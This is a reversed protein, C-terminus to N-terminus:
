LFSEISITFCLLTIVILSFFFLTRAWRNDDRTSYGTIALLFWTLGLLMAVSAYLGGAYGFVSLSLAVLTFIVIYLSIQLKTAAIGKVVPLVPISAAAYDKSRYMAIAYFHPMQWAILILFLILAAGNLTNSVACYGVVPPIAGSLSGVLTGHVSRRKYIGYIVVYFFYGLIALVLTLINTFFGLLLVGALGLATAFILVNQKSVLGSVLARNKTRTMKKDINKDIYNNSVCAAAIICALGALMAILM